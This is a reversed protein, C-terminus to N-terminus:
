RVPQVACFCVRPPRLLPGYASERGSESWKEPRLPPPQTQRLPPPPAPDPPPPPPPPSGVLTPPASAEYPALFPPPPCAEYGSLYPM